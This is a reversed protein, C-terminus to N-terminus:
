QIERIVKGHSLFSLGITGTLDTMVSEILPENVPQDAIWELLFNAGTGSKDKKSVTFIETALPALLRDESLYQKVVRGSTNFYIVKTIKIQHNLDTNHVALLASVDYGKSGLYPLNSYIPMYLVQGRVKRAGGEPIRLTGSNFAVSSPTEKERNDCSSFLFVLLLMLSIRFWKGKM